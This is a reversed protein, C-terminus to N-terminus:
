AHGSGPAAAFADSADSRKANTFTVAAEAILTSLVNQM